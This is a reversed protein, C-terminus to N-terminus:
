IQLVIRLLARWKIYKINKIMGYVNVTVYGNEYTKLLVNRYKVDDSIKDVLM